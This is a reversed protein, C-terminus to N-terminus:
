EKDELIAQRAADLTKKIHTRKFNGADHLELLVEKTFKDLTKDKKVQKFFENVVEEGSAIIKESM